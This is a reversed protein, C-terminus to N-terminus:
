ALAIVGVVLLIVLALESDYVVLLIELMFTNTDIIIIQRHSNRNNISISFITILTKGNDTLAITNRKTIAIDNKKDSKRYDLNNKRNNKTEAAKELFQITINM